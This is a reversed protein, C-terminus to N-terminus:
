GDGAISSVDPALINVAQHNLNSMCRSLKKSHVGRMKSRKRREELRRKLKDKQSGIDENITKKIMRQDNNYTKMIEKSNLDVMKLAQLNMDKKRCEALRNGGQGFKFSTEPNGTISRTRTEVEELHKEKARAEEERSNLKTFVEPKVLMRNIKDKFRMFKDNDYGEYYEM